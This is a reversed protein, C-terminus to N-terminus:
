LWENIIIYSTMIMISITLIASLVGLTINFGIRFLRLPSLQKDRM